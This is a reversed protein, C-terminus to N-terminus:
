VQVMNQLSLLSPLQHIKRHKLQHSHTHKNSAPLPTQLLKHHTKHSHHEFVTPSAFEQSQTLSPRKAIAFNASSNITFDFSPTCPPYFLSPINYSNLVRIQKTKFIHLLFTTELVESMLKNNQPQQFFHEYHPHSEFRAPKKRNGNHM